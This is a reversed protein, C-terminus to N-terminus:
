EGEFAARDEPVDGDRVFGPTREVVGFVIDHDDAVGKCAAWVDVIPSDDGWPRYGARNLDVRPPTREHAPSLCKVGIAEEDKACVDEARRVTGGRGDGGVGFSAFWVTWM